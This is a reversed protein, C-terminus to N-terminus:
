WEWAVQLRAGLRSAGGRAAPSWASRQGNTSSYSLAASVVTIEGIRYPLVAEGGFYTYSDRVEAGDFPSKLKKAESWGVFASIELFTGWRTLAMEYALSGHVTDADLQLDRYYGLRPVFGGPTTWALAAGIEFSKDISNGATRGFWFHRASFDVAVMENLRWSYGAGLDVQRPEDGDFPQRLGLGGSFGAYAVEIAAFAGESSREIGRYVADTEAGMRLKRTFDEQQAGAHSTLALAALMVALSRM